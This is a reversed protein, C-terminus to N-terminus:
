LDGDTDIRCYESVTLKVNLDSGEANTRDHSIFVTIVQFAIVPVHDTNM